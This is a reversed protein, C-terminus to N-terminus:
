DCLERVRQRRKATPNGKEAWSESKPRSALSQGRPAQVWQTEVELKLFADSGDEGRLGPKEQRLGPPGPDNGGRPEWLDPCARNVCGAGRTISKGRSTLMLADDEAGAPPVAQESCQVM